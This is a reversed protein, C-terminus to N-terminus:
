KPKPGFEAIIQRARQRLVVPILQPPRRGHPHNEVLVYGLMEFCSLSRPGSRSDPHCLAHVRGDDDTISSGGEAPDIGCLECAAM